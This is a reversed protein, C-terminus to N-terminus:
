LGWAACKRDITKRSVGLRRAAESRNGGVLDLARLIERREVDELPAIEAADSEDEGVAAPFRGFILAREVFNRLERINGPWDHRLLTSRVAPTIELPAVGMTGAIESLFLEALEIVDTGRAKLPPIDLEVVNIRYLLDRRFRGEAVAQQLPRGSSIVFRLDLQVDRESGVPRIVGDELVRLLATQAHTSLEAMDDLFVTGGQASALLGERAGQAGPFAGAAHGFLEVEIMEAPIAGCHIAVFPAMARASREHLHRAAVEKGTGSAGTILVPTKLRAVRDLVDRVERM